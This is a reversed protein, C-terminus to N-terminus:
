QVLSAFQRLQERQTDTTFRVAITDVGADDYAEITERVTELPGFAGKARIQDDTLTPWAPYYRDYFSRARELARSQDEDIVVDLYIGAGFADTSRGADALLTEIAAFGDSYQGPDIGIPLWGGGYNALREEILKPFGDAPDFAASAVYIPVDGVPEFGISADELDYYAGSYDVSNGDWLGTAIELLENTRAGRDGFSRDLNAYEAEVDSGIGVGVGLKLRGGSLQDVTAVQHAVHVPNRLDPLYVATGLDVADTEAAVAALTSLPEHRPKALISDGVWVSSFGMTEARRALGLVDSATKATLTHEGDSTLVAGRTPLLYGYNAM